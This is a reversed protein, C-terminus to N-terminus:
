YGAKPPQALTLQVYAEISEPKTSPMVLSQGYSTTTSYDHQRSVANLPVYMYRGVKVAVHLM